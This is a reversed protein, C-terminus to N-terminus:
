VNYMVIEDDNELIFRVDTNNYNGIIVPNYNDFDDCKITTIIGGIDIFKYTTSILDNYNSQKRITLKNLM